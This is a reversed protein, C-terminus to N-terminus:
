KVSFSLSAWFPTPCPSLNASLLIRLQSSAPDPNPYLSFSWYKTWMIHLVLENSFVRISPFVSSLLLLLCYLILHNSPMVSEISRLKLLSWSITFSLSAQLAATWPTVFLWVPSPSQVVVIAARIGPRRAGGGGGTGQKGMDSVAQCQTPLSINIGHGQQFFASSHRGLGECKLRGVIFAGPTALVM